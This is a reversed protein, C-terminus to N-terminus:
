APLKLCCRTASSTKPLEALRGTSFARSSTLVGVDGVEWTYRSNILIREFYVKAKLFSSEVRSAAKVLNAGNARAKHKDGNM